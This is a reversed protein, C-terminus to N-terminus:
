YCLHQTNTLIDVDNDNEDDDHFLSRAQVWQYIETGM